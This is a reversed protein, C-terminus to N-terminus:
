VAVVTVEKRQGWRKFLFTIIILQLILLYPGIM